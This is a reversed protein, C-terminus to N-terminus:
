ITELNIYSIYGLNINELNSLSYHSLDQLTNNKRELLKLNLQSFSQVDSNHANILHISPLENIKMVQKSSIDCKSIAIARLLMSILKISAISSFFTSSRKTIGTHNSNNCHTELIFNSSFNHYSSKPLIVIGFSLHSNAKFEDEFFLSSSIKTKAINLSFARISSSTKISFSDTLTTHLSTSSKLQIIESWKLNTTNYISSPLSILTDDFLFLKFKHYKM